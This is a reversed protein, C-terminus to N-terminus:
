VLDGLEVGAGLEEEADHGVVGLAHAAEAHLKTGGHVGGLSEQGKGLLKAEVDHAHAEVDARSCSIGIGVPLSDAISTVDKLLAVFKAVGHTGEIDSSAEGAISKFCHGCREADSQVLEEGDAAVEFDNGFGAAVVDGGGEGNGAVDDSAAGDLVGGEVALPVHDVDVVTDVAVEGVDHEVVLGGDGLDEASATLGEVLSRSGVGGRGAFADLVGDPPGGAVADVLDGLAGAEVGNEVDAVPEVKVLHASVGLARGSLEVAEGVSVIDNVHAALGTGSGEELELCGANLYKVPDDFNM